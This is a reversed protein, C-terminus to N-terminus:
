HLAPPCREAFLLGQRRGLSYGMDKLRNVMGPLDYARSTPELVIRRIVEALDLTISEIIEGEAGECDLKLLDCVRAGSSQMAARLDTLEIELYSASALEPIISHGGANRPHIYLRERRPRGGIGKRIPIVNSLRNLRITENLQAFNLPFPEFCLITAKPYLQKMRLAFLGINAGVDIICPTDTATLECDYCLDVFIEKYIFLTTFHRVLIRKGDKLELLVPHPWLRPMAKLLMAWYFKWPNKLVSFHRAFQAASLEGLCWRLRWM